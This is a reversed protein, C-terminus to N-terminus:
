EEYDVTPRSGVGYHPNGPDLAAIVTRLAAVFASLATPLFWEFDGEAVSAVPATALFTALFTTFFSRAMTRQAPTLTM